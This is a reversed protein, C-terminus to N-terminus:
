LSGPNAPPEEGVGEVEQLGALDVGNEDVDSQYSIVSSQHSFRAEIAARHGLLRESTALTDVTERLAALGDRSVQQIQLKRGFSEVSLPGNTHAYGGTPLVHNTGAAYDGAPQASYPGLFVSGANSIRELTAQPDVTM